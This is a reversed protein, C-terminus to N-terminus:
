GSTSERAAGAADRQAAAREAKAKEIREAIVKM